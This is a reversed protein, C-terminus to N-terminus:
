RGYYNDRRRNQNAQGVVAGIGAGVAGGIITGKLGGGFLAGLVAGGGAGLLAGKGPGIGGQDPRRDNYYRNNDDQRSHDYRSDYYQGGRAGNRFGDNFHQNGRNDTLANSVEFTTKLLVAGAREWGTEALRSVSAWYVETTVSSSPKFPTAAM